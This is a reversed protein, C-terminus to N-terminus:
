KKLSKFVPLVINELVKSSCIAFLAFYPNYLLKEPILKEAKFNNFNMNLFRGNTATKEKIEESFSFLEPRFLQKSM